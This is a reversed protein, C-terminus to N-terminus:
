QKSYFHQLKLWHLLYSKKERRITSKEKSRAWLCYFHSLARKEVAIPVSKSLLFKTTINHEFLFLNSCFFFLLIFHNMSAAGDHWTATLSVSSDFIDRRCVRFTKSTESRGNTAGFISEHSKISEFANKPSCLLLLKKQCMQGLFLTDTTAAIQPMRASQVYGDGTAFKFFLPAADRWGEEAAIFAQIIFPHLRLRLQSPVCIWHNCTIHTRIRACVSSRNGLDGLTLAIGDVM